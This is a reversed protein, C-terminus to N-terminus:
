NFYYYFFLFTMFTWDGNDRSNLSSRLRKLAETLQNKVTQQSLNLRHAIDAISCDEERSMRFVEQMRHPLRKIESEIFENLEKAELSNVPGKDGLVDFLDTHRLEAASYAYHSIVRYKIATFLYRGIGGDGVAFIDKRRGWLTSMVEQVLDKAIEKDVRQCAKLYLREWYRDYLVRFAAADGEKVAYLLEADTLQQSM